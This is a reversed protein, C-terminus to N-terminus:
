KCAKVSKLPQNTRPLSKWETEIETLHRNLCSWCKVEKSLCKSTCMSFDIFLVRINVAEHRIKKFILGKGGYKM